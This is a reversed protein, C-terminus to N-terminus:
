SSAICPVILCALITGTHSINSCKIVKIVRCIINFNEDMWHLALCLLSKGNEGWIDGTMSPKYGLIVPLYIVFRYPFPFLKTRNSCSTPAAVKGNSTRSGKKISARESSALELIYTRVTDFCPPTYAGSTLLEVWERLGTDEVISLPRAEESIWM